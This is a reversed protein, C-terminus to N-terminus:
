DKKRDKENLAKRPKINPHMKARDDRVAHYEYGGVMMYANWRMHESKQRFESNESEEPFNEEMAKKHIGSAMSSLRFYEFREFKQINKTLKEEDAKIEEESRGEKAIEGNEDREIQVWKNHARLASKELAEDYVSEYLYQTSFSGIFNIDYSVGEHNVLFCSAGQAFKNDDHVVTYIQPNEPMNGQKMRIKEFLTRLYVSTEINADDNGMSVIM